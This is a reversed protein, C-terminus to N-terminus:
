RCSFRPQTRMAQLVSSRRALRVVRQGERYSLAAGSRLFLYDTGGATFNIIDGAVAAKVPAYPQQPVGEYRWLVAVLSDGDPILALEIGVLDGGRTNYDISSYVTGEDENRASDLRPRVLRLSLESSEVVAGTRTKIWQIRGDIRNATRRGSFRGELGVVAASRFTLNDAADLVQCLAITGEPAYMAGVGSDFDLRLLLAHRGQKGVYVGSPQSESRTGQDSTGLMETQSRATVTPAVVSALVAIVVTVVLIEIITFGRCRWCIAM